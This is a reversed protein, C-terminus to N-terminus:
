ALDFRITAGLGSGDIGPGLSLVGHYARAIKDVISLGLGSGDAESGEVRYFRHTLRALKEPPVGPGDDKVSLVLQRAGREVALAIRGDARGYKIANEILNDIMLSLALPDAQLVCDPQAALEIAIGKRLAEDANRGACEAALAALDVQRMAAADPHDLRALLLLQRALHTSRNVGAIVQRIAHSRQAEDQAALAVEAQVKIAALPTRLEHAADATFAREKDISYALRRLLHNLSDVLPQVEAPVRDLAITDLNDADRLTIASSLSTMPRLAHGVSLWILLALVPLALLLLQAMRLANQNVLSDRTGPAELVRVQYGRRADRAAFSHWTKGDPTLVAHGDRAMYAADPSGPSRLLLTGDHNWVQFGIHKGRDDDGDHDDHGSADGALAGLRKLDLLMLTRASEELRADALEHIEERTEFYTFGLMATWVLVLSLSLLLVLRRRISFRM